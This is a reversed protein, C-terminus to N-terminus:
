KIKSLLKSCSMFIVGICLALTIDNPMNGTFYKFALAIGVGCSTAVGASMFVIAIIRDM